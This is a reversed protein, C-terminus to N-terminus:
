MYCLESNYEYFDHKGGGGGGESARLKSQKEAFSRESKVQYENFSSAKLKLTNKQPPVRRKTEKYSANGVGLRGRSMERNDGMGM